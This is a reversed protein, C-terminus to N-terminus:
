FLKQDQRKPNEEKSKLDTPYFNRLDTSPKKHIRGEINTRSPIRRRTTRFKMEWVESETSLITSM